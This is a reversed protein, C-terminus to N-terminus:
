PPLRSFAASPSGGSSRLFISAFGFSIAGARRPRLFATHCECLRPAVEQLAQPCFGRPSPLSGGPGHDPLRRRAPAGGSGRRAAAIQAQGLVETHADRIGLF